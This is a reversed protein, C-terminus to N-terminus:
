LGKALLLVIGVAIPVGVLNVVAMIGAQKWRSAELGHIKGEHAEVTAGVHELRETITAQGVHLADLGEFIRATDVESM